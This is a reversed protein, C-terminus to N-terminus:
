KDDLTITRQSNGDITRDLVGGPVVAMGPRSSPAHSLSRPRELDVKARKSSVIPVGTGAGAGDGANGDDDVTLEESSRKKARKITPTPTPVSAVTADTATASTTNQSHPLFTGISSATSHSDTTQDCLKARKPPTGILRRRPVSNESDGSDYNSASSGDVDDGDLEDSSRKKSTRVNESSDIENSSSLPNSNVGPSLSSRYTEEGDVVYPEDEYDEDDDYELDDDFEEEGEGDLEIESVEHLVIEASEEPVPKQKVRQPQPQSPVIPATAATYAAHAAAEIM